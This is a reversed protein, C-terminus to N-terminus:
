SPEYGPQQDSDGQGRPEFAFIDFGAARLFHCYPVCAWRNSGYELGFLIVGLRRPASTHLYCGRLTLGEPTTLRVDEADDIPLGRPIVFLPREQFIRVITPLYNRKVRLYYVVVILTPLLVLGAVAGLSLWLWPM